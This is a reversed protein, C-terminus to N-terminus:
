IDPSLQYDPSLGVVCCNEYHMCLIWVELVGTSNLKCFKTDTDQWTEPSTKRFNCKSKESDETQYASIAFEIVALSIKM